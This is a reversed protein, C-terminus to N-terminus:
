ANQAVFYEVACRDIKLIARNIKHASQTADQLYIRGSSFELGESFSFKSKYKGCLPTFM